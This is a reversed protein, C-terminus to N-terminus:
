SLAPASGRDYPIFRLGLPDTEEAPVDAGQILEIGEQFDM